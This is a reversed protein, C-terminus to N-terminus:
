AACKVVSASFLTLEEASALTFSSYLVCDVQLVFHLEWTRASMLVLRETHERMVFTYFLSLLIFLLLM